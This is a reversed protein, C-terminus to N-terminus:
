AGKGGCDELEKSVPAFKKVKGRLYFSLFFHLAIGSFSLRQQSPNLEPNCLFHWGKFDYNWVTYTPKLPVNIM